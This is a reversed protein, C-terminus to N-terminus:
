CYFCYKGLDGPKYIAKDTQIFLSVSKFSGYVVTSNKFPLSGTGTINVRYSGSPIDAPVQLSITVDSQGTNSICLGNPM